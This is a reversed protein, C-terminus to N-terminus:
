ESAQSEGEGGGLGAEISKLGAILERVISDYETFLEGILDINDSLLGASAAISGLREEIRGLRAENRDIIAILERQANQSREVAVSHEILSKNIETGNNTTCCGTFVAWVILSFFVLLYRYAGM